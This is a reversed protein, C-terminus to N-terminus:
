PASLWRYFRKVLLVKGFLEGIPKSLQSLPAETASVFLGPWETAPVGEWHLNDIIKDGIRVGLHMGTSSIQIGEQTMGIIDSRDSTRLREFTAPFRTGLRKAIQIACEACQFVGFRAAIESAAHQAELATL